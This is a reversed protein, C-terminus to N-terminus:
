EPYMWVKMYTKIMIEIEIETDNKSNLKKLINGLIREATALQIYVTSNTM